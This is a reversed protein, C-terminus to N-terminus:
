KYEKKTTCKKCWLMKGQRITNLSGCMKCAEGTVVESWRVPLGKSGRWTRAMDLAVHDGKHEFALLCFLGTHHQNGCKM